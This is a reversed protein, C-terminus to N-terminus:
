EAICTMGRKTMLDVFDSAKGVCADRHSPTNWIVQVTGDERKYKTTCSTGSRTTTISRHRDGIHCRYNGGSRLVISDKTGVERDFSFPPAQGVSTLVVTPKGYAISKQSGLTTTLVWRGDFLAVTNTGPLKSIDTVIRKAEAKADNLDIGTWQGVETAPNLRNPRIEVIGSAEKLLRGKADRAYTTNSLCDVDKASICEAVQVANGAQPSYAQLRSEGAQILVAGGAKLFGNRIAAEDGGQAAVAIGGAAGAVAARQVVASVPANAPIPAGEGFQSAAGAVIGARFAISADGTSKYTSWAAYAAAGGPGGYIAASSAAAQNILKSEQTAKFFNEEQSKLPEAALGWAADVVKGERIRREAAGLANAQDRIVRRQYRLAAEGAEIGDNLSRKAQERSKTWGKEYTAIAESGAKTVTVVVRNSAYQVTSITSSGARDLISFSGEGVKTFTKITDTGVVRVVATGGKALREATTVFSKPLKEATDGIADALKRVPRTPDIDKLSIASACTAAMVVAVSLFFRSKM